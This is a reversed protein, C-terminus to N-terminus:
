LGETILLHCIADVLSSKSIDLSPDEIKKTLFRDLHLRLSKVLVGIRAVANFRIWDDVVILGKEHQVHLAGGFLLLAYPAVMTSQRVFLRSTQVLDTYMLWPSEFQGLTFNISSPHLFVREHEKALTRIVFRLEKANHTAALVGHASEYYKQEPYIVSVVNGYLGATLAAKVVKGNAAHENLRDRNSADYFGIAQLHELYQKRLEVISDLTEYSLSKDKCYQRRSRKELGLFTKVVSWLLMHDSTPIEASLARKVDDAKKRDDATTVFPSKCELAAAITVIPDICRLICGFVVVKALRADMPLRALHSGLPTLRVSDDAERAFAGMELLGDIASAVAAPSPPEIAQSLFSTVSSGLELAQIQLCLPELSVRHIEPTPQAPMKQFKSTSFLRYCIGPRVRGARGKRQDAAAQSIWGEKLSSRRNIADYAMEKAKGADIVVVIDNITISTEAVNTSVIVKTRGKPASEFVRSQEHAPLAGHLPLPLVLPALDADGQLGRITNKIEQVGPMFILIAGEGAGANDPTEVVLHRVLATVLDYNIQNDDDGDDKKKAPKVFGTAEYVHKIYHCTVPFTFGPISMVPTTSATVAGFYNQFLSTNMTASMLILRLDPRQRLVDRLISLLLDTDVNREHVEDVIIHSVERLLPDSLFRRLLVGTTCFLLRTEASKKTDMRIQYGVSEGITECREQAVRTAVGIAALRRPQTCLINCSQKAPIFHDLLFQPVQTTKGCGTAGSILIVQNTELLSVIADKEKYAPLMGRATMMLKYKATRQKAMHKDYLAENIAAIQTDSVTRPPGTRRAKVPKKKSARLPEEVKSAATPAESAFLTVTPLQSPAAELAMCLEYMMPEGRLKTAADLLHATLALTNRSAADADNARLLVMPVDFPYLADNSLYFELTMADDLVMITVIAEGGPSETRTAKDDYISEIVMYEDERLSAIDEATVDADAREIRLTRLLENHLATRLARLLAAPDQLGQSKISELAGLCDVHSFGYAALEKFLPGHLAADYAAAAEQDKSSSIGYAVAELQKGLPNFGKPLEHEPINLCVWDLVSADDSLDRCKTLVAEIHALSFGMSKLKAQVERRRDADHETALESPEIKEDLEALITEVLDRAKQGMFVQVPMNARERNERARARRNREERESLKSQQFEARSAFARDSTLVRVDKKSEDDVSSEDTTSAAAAVPTAPAAVPLVKVKKGTKGADKKAPEPAPCMAIWMDRYPDPLKREHPRTPEVYYLALLAACHKADDISTDVSQAPCFILDKDRSKADPLICRIRFEADSNTHVEHFHPQQRKVSQCYERLLQMPTRQWEKCSVGQRVQEGRSTAVTGAGKQRHGRARKAPASM